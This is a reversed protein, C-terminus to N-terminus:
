SAAHRKTVTSTGIAHRAAYTRAAGSPDRPKTELAVQPIAWGTVRCPARWRSGRYSAGRYPLVARFLRDGSPLLRGHPLRVTPGPARPDPHQGRVAVDPRLALKPGHGRFADRDM